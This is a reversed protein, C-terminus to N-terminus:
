PLMLPRSAPSFCGWNHQHHERVACVNDACNPSNRERTPAKAAKTPAGRVLADDACHTLRGHRGTGGSGVHVKAQMDAHVVIGTSSKPDRVEANRIGLKSNRNESKRIGLDLNVTSDLIM